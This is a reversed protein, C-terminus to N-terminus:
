KYGQFKCFPICLFDLFILKYWFGDPLNEPLPANEDIQRCVYEPADPEWVPKVREPRIDSWNLPIDKHGYSLTKIGDELLWRKDDFTCLASKKNEFSFIKHFRSGIRRTTVSNPHPDTLQMVYDDHHIQASAARQIGKARHHNEIIGSRLRIQYSYMKPRLGVFDIIPDGGAEDKFKGIVKCNTKDYFPSNHDLNSMDFLESQAKMDAYFDATSIQYCLSDTDTFLLEARDGYKEKM